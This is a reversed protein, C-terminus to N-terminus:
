SSKGDTGPTGSPLSKGGSVDDSDKPESSVRFVLDPPPDARHRKNSHAISGPSDPSEEVVTKPISRHSSVSLERRRQIIAKEKEDPIVAIEDPAADEVRQQYAATGPVEGYSPEDSVKEI